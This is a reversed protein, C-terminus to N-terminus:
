LSWQRRHRLLLYLFFPTGLMATVIGLPLEAPAVLTRAVLDAGILLSAGFLAVGPLLSRHDPGIVLRLLHPVVLGLFGIIGAVSVAAGVAMAVLIVVTRKVHEVDIGLHRAEAEGLLLVNLRRSLRPLLLIAALLFPAAALLASWTAAGLSGLSWFTVTRLQVDTAVFTFLGTGAGALANIAIGALLMTAVSTQSGQSALRYVVATTLVGGVFAAIPLTFPGLLSPFGHLVTTGMVIVVVVALAAGSAIGILGPDALPNRFLGQMAAGSIALGAGILMGLLVRPLRIALLILEQQTTFTWPLELHLQHALIALVQGPAITVTGHGVAVV